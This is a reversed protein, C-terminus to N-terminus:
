GCLLLELEGQEQSYGNVWTCKNKQPRAAMGSCRHHLHEVAFNTVRGLVAGADVVVVAALESVVVEVAAVAVSRGPASHL